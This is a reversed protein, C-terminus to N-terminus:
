SKSSVSCPTKIAQIQLAGIPPFRDRVIAEIHKQRMAQVLASIDVIFAGHQGASAGVGSGVVGSREDAALDSCAGGCCRGAAEHLRCLGLLEHDPSADLSESSVRRQSARPNQSASACLPLISVDKVSCHLTSPMHQPM